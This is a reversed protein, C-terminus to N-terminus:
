FGHRKEELFVCKESFVGKSTLMSKQHSKSALKTGNQRGSDEFDPFFLNWSAYFFHYIKAEIKSRHQNRKPQWSPVMHAVNKPGLRGLLSGLHWLIGLGFAILAWEAELIAGIRGLFAELDSKPQNKSSTQYINSQQEQIQEDFFFRNWCADFM